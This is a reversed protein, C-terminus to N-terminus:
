SNTKRINVNMIERKVGGAVRSVIHAYTAIVDSYLGPRM